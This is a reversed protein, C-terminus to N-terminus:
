GQPGHEQVAVCGDNLHGNNHVACCWVTACSFCPSTCLRMRASGYRDLTQMVDHLDRFEQSKGDMKCALKCIAWYFAYTRTDDLSQVVTLLDGVTNVSQQRYLRNLRQQFSSETQM